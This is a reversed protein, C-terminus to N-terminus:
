CFVIKLVPVRFNRKYNAFPTLTSLYDPATIMLYRGPSQAQSSSSRLYLSNNQINSFSNGFFSSLYEERAKSTYAVAPQSTNTYTFTFTAQKLVQIKNTSPNYTFPFISMALGKQGFVIYPDSLKWKFNYLDGTSSYYAQNLQLDPQETVDMLDEQTPLMRKDLTFESVVQNSVTVTYNSSGAPVPLDCSLQPLQPYGIDEVYGFNDVKIYKFIESTNFLSVLSTDQLTYTPLTFSISYGNSTNSINLVNTQAFVTNAFLVSLLIIIKSKM